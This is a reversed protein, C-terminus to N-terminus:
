KNLGYILLAQVLIIKSTLEDCDIYDLLNGLQLDEHHLLSEECEDRSRQQISQLLQHEKADLMIWRSSESSSHTSTISSSSYKVKTVLPVIHEIRVRAGYITGGEPYM